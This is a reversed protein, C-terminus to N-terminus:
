LQELLKLRKTLDARWETQDRDRLLIIQGERNYTVIGDVIVCHKRLVDYDIGKIEYTVDINLVGRVGRIYFRGKLLEFSFHSDIRDQWSFVEFGNQMLIKVARRVSNEDNGTFLDLDMPKHDLIEPFTLYTGFSGIVAASGDATLQRALESLIKFREEYTNEVDNHNMM